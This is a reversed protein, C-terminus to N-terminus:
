SCSWNDLIYSAHLLIRRWNVSQWCCCYCFPYDTKKLDIASAFRWIVRYGKTVGLAFVGSIAIAILCTFYRSLYLSPVQSLTFNFRAILAIFYALAMMCIDTLMIIFIRNFKYGSQLFSAKVNKM